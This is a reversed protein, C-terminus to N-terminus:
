KKYHKCNREYMREYWDVKKHFKEIVRSYEQKYTNFADVVSKGRALDGYARLANRTSYASTALKTTKVINKGLKAGLEKSMAQTDSRTLPTGLESNIKEEDNILKTASITGGVLMASSVGFALCLSKIENRVLSWLTDYATVPINNILKYSKDILRHCNAVALNVMPKDIPNGKKALIKLKSLETKIEAKSKKFTSKIKNNYYTESVYVLDNKKM